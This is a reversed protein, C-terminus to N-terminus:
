ANPVDVRFAFVLIGKAGWASAKVGADTMQQAVTAAEDDGLQDLVLLYKDKPLAVVQLRATM